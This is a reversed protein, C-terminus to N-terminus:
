VSTVRTVRSIRLFASADGHVEGAQINGDYVALAATDRM